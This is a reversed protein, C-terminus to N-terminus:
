LMIDSSSNRGFEGVRIFAPVPMPWSLAHKTRGTSSEMSLMNSVRLCIASICWLPPPVPNENECRLGSPSITNDVFPLADPGTENMFINLQAVSTTLCPPLLLPAFMPTSRTSWGSMIFNMVMFFSRCLMFFKLMDTATVSLNMFAASFPSCYSVMLGRVPSVTPFSLAFSTSSRITVIAHCPPSGPM